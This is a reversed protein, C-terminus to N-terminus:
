FFAALSQDIDANPALMAIAKALAFSHGGRVMAAIHKERMDRDAESKGFPGIRKRRAFDLAAAVKAEALDPEVAAADAEGIGAQRLAGRVRVAGLGRRTMAGAKAVAFARDDIYGLAAFREAIAAPDPEREGAWGRARIKESLYRTLKARTTAFREVYRLALRELAAQDLPPLPRKPPPVAM